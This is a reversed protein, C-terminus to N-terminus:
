QKIEPKGALGAKFNDWDRFIETAAAGAVAVLLLGLLVSGGQIERQESVTVPHFYLRDPENTKM